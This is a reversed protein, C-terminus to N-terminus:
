DRPEFELPGLGSPLRDPILRALNTPTARPDLLGTQVFTVLNLPAPKSVALLHHDEFLVHM